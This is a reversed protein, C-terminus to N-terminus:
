DFNLDQDTVDGGCDVLSKLIYIKFNYSLLLSCSLVFLYHKEYIKYILDKKDKYYCIICFIIRIPNSYM